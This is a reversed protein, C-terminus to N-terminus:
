RMLDHARRDEIRPLRVTFTAGKGETNRVFIQSGHARVIERCIFLGLGMGEGSPPFSM